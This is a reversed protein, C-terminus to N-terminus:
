RKGAPTKKPAITKLPTIGVTECALKYATRVTGAMNKTRQTRPRLYSEDARLNVGLQVVNKETVWKWTRHAQVHDFFYVLLDLEESIQRDEHVEDPIKPDEPNYIEAPFWPYSVMKAWVLTGLPWKGPSDEYKAVPLSTAVVKMQEKTSPAKKARKNSPPVSSSTVSINDLNDGNNHNDSVESAQRKLTRSSDMASTPTRSFSSNTPSMITSSRLRPLPTEPEKVDGDTGSGSPDENDSVWVWGLMGKKRYKQPAKNNTAEAARTARSTSSPTDLVLMTRNRTRGAPSDMHQPQHEGLESAPTSLVEESSAARRGRKKSSESKIDKSKDKSISDGNESGDDKKDGSPTNKDPNKDDSSNENEGEHGSDETKPPPGLPELNYSWMRMDPEVMLHGTDYNVPLKEYIEKLNKIAKNATRRVRGALMHHYTNPPNYSQCNKIVLNIDDEFQEPTHYHLKSIRDKMTGFDMPNQIVHYYDPAENTSVPQAFAGRPDSKQITELCPLLLQALPTLVFQWYEMQLRVRKLKEKERRKIIEALMRVKELDTRLALIVKQQKEQAVELEKQQTASATWPELHLRKLLPAGHHAKRKLAWYQCVQTLLSTKNSVAPRAPIRSLVNHFVFQNIVPANPDFYQLTAELSDLEPKTHSVELPSRPSLSHMYMRASGPSLPSKTFSLSGRRAQPTRPSRPSELGKKGKPTTPSLSKRNNKLIALISNRTSSSKSNQSAHLAKSPANLEIKQTYNHPTHRDCYVRFIPENTQRDPKVKMYLHAKRACTVHFAAFCQRHSCQICAGVRTNCLNCTLKWRSRPINEVSDIPEMYVTNSICVEPIWLACLLHAWKNSTTKKFAGGKHPCFICMPERDPSLMCKRCLWQGEPIYPIGYCDQHVALNCGDCFVIANSNDCEEEECIACAADEPPIQEQMITTIERQTDKVLDFWQKEIQDILFELTYESVISQENMAREANLLDLWARDEEDLDYEVLDALEMETLELHRIYHTRPRSFKTNNNNNNDNVDTGIPTQDIVKHFKTVPLNTQPKKIALILAPSQHDPKTADTYESTAESDNISKTPKKDQFDVIPLSQNLKLDPFFDVYSREERPKETPSLFSSPLPADQNTVNNNASQTNGPPDNSSTPTSLRLRRPRGRPRKIINGDLINIRTTSKRSSEPNINNSSVDTGPEAPSDFLSNSLEDSEEAPQFDRGDVGNIHNINRGGRRRLHHHNDNTSGSQQRMPFSVRRRQANRLHLSRLTARRSKRIINTDRSRLRPKSISDDSEYQGEDTSDAAIFANDSEFESEGDEVDSSALLDGRSRGRRTRKGLSPSESGDARHRLHRLSHSQPESDRLRGNIYIDDIDPVPVPASDSRTRQQTKKINGVREPAVKKRSNLRLCVRQTKAQRRMAPGESSHINAENFHNNEIGSDDGDGDSNKNNNNNSNNNTNTTTTTTTTTAISNINNNTSHNNPVVSSVQRNPATTEFKRAETSILRQEQENNNKSHALRSSTWDETAWLPETSNSSIETNKYLSDTQLENLVALQTLPAPLATLSGTTHPIYAKTPAENSSHIIRLHKDLARQNNCSRKCNPFPCYYIAEETPLKKPSIYTDHPCSNERNNEIIPTADDQSM